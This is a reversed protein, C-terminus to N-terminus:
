FLDLCKTLLGSLTVVPIAEDNLNVNRDQMAMENSVNCLTSICLAKPTLVSVKIMLSVRLLDAVVTLLLLMYNVYGM